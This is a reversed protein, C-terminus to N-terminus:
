RGERKILYEQLNDRSAKLKDINNGDIHHNTIALLSTGLIGDFEDLKRLRIYDKEIREELTVVKSEVKTLRKQNNWIPRIIKTILGVITGIITLIGVGMSIIMAIEMAIEMVTAKRM